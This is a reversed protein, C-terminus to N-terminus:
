MARLLASGMAYCVIVCLVSYSVVPFKQMLMAFPAFLLIIGAFCLFGVGIAKLIEIMENGKM